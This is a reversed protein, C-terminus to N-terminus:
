IPPPPPPPRVFPGMAALGPLEPVDGFGVVKLESGTVGPPETGIVTPLGPPLTTILQFGAYSVPITIHRFGCFLMAGVEFFKVM